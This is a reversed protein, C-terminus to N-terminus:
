HFAHSGSQESCNQGQYSKNAELDVLFLLVLFVSCFYVYCLLSSLVLSSFIPTSPSHFLFLLLMVFHDLSHSIIMAKVDTMVYIFLPPITDKCAFTHSTNQQTVQLFCTITIAMVAYGFRQKYPKLATLVGNFVEQMTVKEKGNGMGDWVRLLQAMFDDSDAQECAQSFSPLGCIYKKFEEWDLYNDSNTDATVFVAESHAAIYLNTAQLHALCLITLLLFFSGILFPIALATTYLCQPSDDIHHLSSKLRTEWGLVCCGALLLYFLFLLVVVQCVFLVICSSLIPVFLPIDVVLKSHTSAM